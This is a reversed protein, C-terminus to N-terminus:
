RTTRMQLFYQQEGYIVGGSSAFVVKRINFKKCAELINLGGMINISADNLPDEVSNRVSMQAANHIIVQPEETKIIEFVQRDRIDCNYFRANPNINERKGSSLDDIICVEFDNEILLGAVHSGIFGAGGTILVKL